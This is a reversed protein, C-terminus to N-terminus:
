TLLGHGRAQGNPGPRCSFLFKNVLIKTELSIKVIRIVIFRSKLDNNLRMM